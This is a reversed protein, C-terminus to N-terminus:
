NSLALKVRKPLLVDDGADGGRVNWYLITKKIFLKSMDSYLGDAISIKVMGTIVDLKHPLNRIEKFINILATDYELSMIVDDLEQKHSLFWDFIMRRTMVLSPDIVVALEMMADKYAEVKEETLRGDAVVVLGLLTFIYKWEEPGIAPMKNMKTKRGPAQISIPM